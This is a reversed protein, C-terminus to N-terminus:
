GRLIRVQQAATEMGRERLYTDYWEKSYHCQAFQQAHSRSLKLDGAVAGNFRKKSHSCGFQIEIEDLRYRYRIHRKATYPQIGLKTAIREVQKRTM